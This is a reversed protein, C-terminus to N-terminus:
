MVTGMTSQMNHLSCTHLWTHHYVFGSWAPSTTGLSFCAALAMKWVRSCTVTSASAESLIIQLEGSSCQLKLLVLNLFCDMHASFWGPTHHTLILANLTPSIAYGLPHQM